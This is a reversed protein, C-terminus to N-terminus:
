ETCVEGGLPRCPSLLLISSLSALLAAQRATSRRRQEAAAQIDAEERRVNVLEVESRMQIVAEAGRKDGDVEEVEEAEKGENAEIEHHREVGEM